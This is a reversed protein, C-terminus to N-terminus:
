NSYFEIWFEYMKRAAALSDKYENFNTWYRDSFGECRIACLGSFMDFYFPFAKCLSPKFSNISCQGEIFAKCSGDENLVMKHYKKKMGESYSREVLDSYGNRYIREYDEETLVIEEFPRHDLNGLKDSFGTFSGCCSNKCYNMKCCFNIKGDVIKISEDPM